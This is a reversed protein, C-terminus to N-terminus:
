CIFSISLDGMYSHEFNIYFHEIQNVDTIIAGPVFDSFVLQHEFCTSQDDPVFQPQGFDATPTSSWTTGTASGDLTVPTNICVNSESTTLNIEPQTSVYVLLDISNASTCGQDDTVSLNVRYAGGESYAHTVMPWDNSSTGDGFSWTANQFSRGPGFTTPFANFSIPENQCVELPASPDTIAFAWPKVCPQECSIAAGFNGNIGDTDSTFELTLCGDGNTSTIDVGQLQFATYSGLLPASTNNGDYIKLTDGSGLSFVTFYLNVLADASGDHCITTAFNEGDSYSSASYGTDVIFAGCDSINGEAISYEQSYGTFPVVGFILAFRIIQKM